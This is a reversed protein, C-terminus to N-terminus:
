EPTSPTCVRGGGAPESPRRRLSGDPRESYGRTSGTAMQRHMEASPSRRRSPRCAVKGFPIYVQMLPKTSCPSLTSLAAALPAPPSLPSPRPRLGRRRCGHGHPRPLCNHASARRAARASLFPSAISVPVLSPPSAPLPSSSAARQNSLACAFRISSRAFPLSLIPAFPHQRRQRNRM